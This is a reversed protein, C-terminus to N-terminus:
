FLLLFFLLTPWKLNLHNSYKRFNEKISLLFFGSPFFLSVCINPIVQPQRHREEVLSTFLLQYWQLSFDCFCNKSFSLLVNLVVADGFGCIGIGDLLKAIASFDQLVLFYASCSVPYGVFICEPLSQTKSQLAVMTM